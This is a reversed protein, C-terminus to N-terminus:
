RNSSFARALRATGQALGTRDPARWARRPEILVFAVRLSIWALVAAAAVAFMTAFALTAFNVIAMM